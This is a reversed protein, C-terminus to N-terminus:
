EAVPTSDGSGPTDGSGNEFIPAMLQETEDTSTSDSDSKSEPDSDSFVSKIRTWASKAAQGAESDVRAVRQLYSALEDAADESHGRDRLYAVCSDYSETLAGAAKALAYSPQDNRATEFAQRDTRWGTDSATKHAVHVSDPVAPRDVM